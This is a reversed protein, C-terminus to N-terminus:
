GAVRPGFMDHRSSSRQKGWNQYLHDTEKQKGKIQSVVDGGPRGLCEVGLHM